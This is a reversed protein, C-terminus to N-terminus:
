QVLLEYSPTCNRYCDRYLSPLVGLYFLAFALNAIQGAGVDFYKFRNLGTAGSVQEAFIDATTAGNQLYSEPVGSAGDVRVIGNGAALAEGGLWPTMAFGVALVSRLLKMSTAIGGKENLLNQYQKKMGYRLAKRKASM